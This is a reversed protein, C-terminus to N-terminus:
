SIGLAQCKVSIIKYGYKQRSDVVFSKESHAEIFYEKGQEIKETTEGLVPFGDFFEGERVSFKYVVEDITYDTNNIIKIKESGVAVGSESGIYENEIYVYKAINSKMDQKKAEEKEEKEKRIDEDRQRKYILVEDLGNTSKLMNEDIIEVDDGSVFTSGEKFQLKPNGIISYIIKYTAKDAHSEDEGYSYVSITSEKENFAGFSLHENDNRLFVSNSLSEIIKTNKNCSIFGVLFIFFVYYSKM